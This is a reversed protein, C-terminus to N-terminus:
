TELQSALFEADEGVGLLLASGRKHQWPLGLFYLGNVPTIGRQHLPQGHSDFVEPIQLWGFHSSFGTAWIVNQIKLQEQDQFTFIDFCCSITRPHLLIKRDQILQKLEYGFIPDGSSRIKRGVMSERTAKLLGTSGFWWFISKGLISLPLFRPSQSVSLHVEKSAALEVAIQAGSNGGGVILVNGPKLQKANKYESSHLQRVEMALKESIPPVSPSQFPGTAVILRKALYENQTTIIKFASDAKVAALVENQLHVPLNFTKAYLQLYASVENKAPFEQPPGEMPLGPLSSFARPTFLKLSDYRNRWVTGISEEKELIVFKKKQRSLHYGMALGAQGAGVVVADLM